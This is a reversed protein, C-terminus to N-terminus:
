EDAVSHNQNEVERESMLCTNTFLEKMELEKKEKNLRNFYEISNKKDMQNKKDTYVKIEHMREERTKISRGYEDVEKPVEDYHFLMYYFQALIFYILMVISFILSLIHIVTIDDVFKTLSLYLFIIIMTNEFLETIIEIQRYKQIDYIKFYNTHLYVHNQPFLFHVPLEIFNEVLLFLSMFLIVIRNKFLKSFKYINGLSISLLKLIPSIFLIIFLGYNKSLGLMLISAYYWKLINKTILLIWYASNMFEDSSKGESKKYFVNIFLYNM